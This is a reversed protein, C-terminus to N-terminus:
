RPPVIFKLMKCEKLIQANSLVDSVRNWGQHFALPITRLESASGVYSEHRHMRDYDAIGTDNGWLRQITALLEQEGLGHEPFINEVSFLSAEFSSPM